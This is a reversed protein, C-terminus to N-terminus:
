HFWGVIATVGAIIVFLIAFGVVGCTLLALKDNKFARKKRAELYENPEPWTEMRQLLCLTIDSDDDVVQDHPRPIEVPKSRCDGDLIPEAAARLCSAALRLFGPRNATLGGCHQPKFCKIQSKSDTVEAELAAAIRILEDDDM